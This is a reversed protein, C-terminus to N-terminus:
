KSFMMAVIEPYTKHSKKDFSIVGSIIPVAEMTIERERM